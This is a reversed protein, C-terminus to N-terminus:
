VEKRLRAVPLNLQERYKAVTRRAINYGKENLMDSLADDSLPHRKDEAEIMEELMRKVERNSVETGDDTVIGETFFYKLPYIAWDTQVFKSNAVRSITSIDMEVQDAIDKLIMPRLRKEDGGSLFFDKQKESIAIMTNLLTFQRQKIADIFWQASEIKAKVFELTERVTETKKRKQEAKYQEYMKIYNGSVRLEPANRGNLKIDVIGNEATLIFDPIIYEHKVNSPAEGPKPNLKVIEAYVEKLKEESIGLASKLKHFHKKTFEEFHDRLIAIAYNIEPSPHKRELQLILCEQLDRAGVGAPDFKQIEKLVAEVEAITVKMNYRFVLDNVIAPVPRRLYGDEDISGVLHHAIELQHPELDVMGLQEELKDMFSQMQIIPVEYDDEDDGSSPLKEKYNYPDSQLYDELNFDDNFENDPSDKSDMDAYAQPTDDEQEMERQGEELAPNVELEEKVRAELSATPVQLLKIFQIQQPSILQKLRLQQRQSLM